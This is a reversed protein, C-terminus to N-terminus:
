RAVCAGNPTVVVWENAVSVVDGDLAKCVTKIRSLTRRLEDVNTHKFEGLRALVVRGERLNKAVRESDAFAELRDVVIQVKGDGEVGDEVLEAYDEGATSGTSLLTRLNAFSM